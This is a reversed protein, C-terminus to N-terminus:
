YGISGHEANERVRRIWSGLGDDCVKLRRRAHQAQLKNDHIGPEFHM